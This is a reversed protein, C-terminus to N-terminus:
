LTIEFIFFSACYLAGIACQMKVRNNVLLKDDITM